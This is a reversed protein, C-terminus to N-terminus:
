DGSRASHQASTNCRGHRKSSQDILNNREEKEELEKELTKNREKEEELENKLSKNIEEKDGLNKNTEELEKTLTENLQKSQLLIHNLIKIKLNM